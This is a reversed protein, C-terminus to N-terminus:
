NPINIVLLYRHSLGFNKSEKKFIEPTAIMSEIVIKAVMTPSISGTLSAVGRMPPHRQSMFSIPSSLQGLCLSSCCCVRSIDSYLKSSIAFLGFMRIRLCPVHICPGRFFYAHKALCCGPLALCFNRAVMYLSKGPARYM